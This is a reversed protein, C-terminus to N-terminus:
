KQEQDPNRHLQTRGAFKFEVFTWCWLISSFTSSVSFFFNVLSDFLNEDEELEDDGEPFWIRPLLLLLLAIGGDEGKIEEDGQHDYKIKKEKKIRSIKWPM